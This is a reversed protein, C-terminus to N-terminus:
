YVFTTEEKVMPRPLFSSNFELRTTAVGSQAAKATIKFQTVGKPKIVVDPFIVEKGNITATQDTVSVPSIEDSFVVRVQSNVERFTGQNTIRITYTVEDGVRIPDVNDVIETLVGPAGEWITTASATDSVKANSARATVSNTTTQPQSSSITVSDTLSQGPALNPITWAVRDKRQDSPNGSASVLTVNKPLDDTVTINELVTDGINTVTINYTANRFVFLRDPGTKEVKIRSTVIKTPAAVATVTAANSATATANNVYEGSDSATVPVSVTRSQGVALTGIPFSTASSGSLGSPLNDVIVVDNADATGNNTVTIGYSFPSGLEVTAPGTKTLALRPTGARLPLIVVPDICVKSTTLFDGERTPKVVITKEEVQGTSMLPLAAWRLIRGDRTAQPSTSVLDLGDPLTESINVDTINALATVRLIYTNEAGVQSSANVLIKEVTYLNSDFRSGLAAGAV